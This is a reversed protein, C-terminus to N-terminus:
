IGSSSEFVALAVAAAAAACAVFKAGGKWKEGAVIEVSLGGFWDFRRCIVGTLLERRAAHGCLRGFESWTKILSGEFAAALRLWWSSCPHKTVREQLCQV